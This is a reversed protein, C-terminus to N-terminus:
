SMLIFSYETDPELGRLEVYHNLRTGSGRKDQVPSKEVGNFVPVVYAEVEKQTVWSLTISSPTINSIIVGQPAPDGTAQSLYQVGKYVGFVTAPIGILLLVVFRLQKKQYPTLHM